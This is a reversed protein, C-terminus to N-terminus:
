PPTGAEIWRDLSWNGGKRRLVLVAGAALVSDLLIAQLPTLSLAAGFCGCHELAVGRLVVSALSLLFASLVALAAAACLRARYGALLCAGLLVEVWPLARALALINAETLGPIYYAEIVAAFEEAPAVAKPFGSLVFALGVVVRAAVAAAAWRDAGAHPAAAAAPRPGARDRAEPSM